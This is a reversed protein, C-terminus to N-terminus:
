AFSPLSNPDDDIYSRLLQLRDAGFRSKDFALLKPFEVVEAKVLNPANKGKIKHNKVKNQQQMVTTLDSEIFGFKEYLPGGYPSADLLATPCKRDELWRLIVMLISGGVGRRQFRPDVGMKGIYAFPGFDM